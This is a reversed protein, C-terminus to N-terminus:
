ARGKPFSREFRRGCWFGAVLLFIMLGAITLDLIM